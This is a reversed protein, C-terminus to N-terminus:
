VVKIVNRPPLKPAPDFSFSVPVVWQSGGFKSAVFSTPKVARGPPIRPNMPGNLPIQSEPLKQVEVLIDVSGVDALIYEIDPSNISSIVISLLPRDTLHILSQSHYIDTLLFDALHPSKTKNRAEARTFM